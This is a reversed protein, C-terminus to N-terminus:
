VIPRWATPRRLSRPTIRPAYLLQAPQSLCQWAWRLLSPRTFHLTAPSRSPWPVHEWEPQDIPPSIFRGCNIELTTSGSM